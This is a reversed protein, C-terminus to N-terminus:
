PRMPRSKTPSSTPSPLAAPALAFLKTGRPAPLPRFLRRFATDAPLLVSHKEENVLLHTAGMRSLTEALRRSDPLSELVLAYRNPGFYDGLFRGRAFYAANECFLGYVAYGAGLARNLTDLAPYVRVFRSLYADRQSATVPLPGRRALTMTAWVMGPLVLLATVGATGLWERPRRRRSLGALVDDLVWAAVLLGVPMMMLLYRKDPFFLYWFLGYVGSLIAILRGRRDVVAGWLFFPGLGLLVPSLPPTEGFGQGPTVLRIPIGLVQVPHRFREIRARLRARTAEDRVSAPALPDIPESWASTGFWRSFYPFVPNGTEWVIRGYFPALAIVAVGAFQAAQRLGGRRWRTLVTAIPLAAVLFLGFYKTSAAFGALAGSALLWRSDGSERWQLWALLSFAGFLALGADVYAASGTHLVAPTGLWAAAAWIGARPTAFRRGAALLGVATLAVAAFHILQANVEDSLSLSAAFLLEFLQPFVPFRIDPLFAIAQQQSFAKAVPLHYLTSDFGTPPYFALALGALLAAALVSVGIREPRHLRTPLPRLARWRLLVLIAPALVVALIAPPSLWGALGLVNLLSALVGTGLAGAFAAQELGDRFPLSGAALRGWGYVALGFVVLEVLHRLVFLAVGM